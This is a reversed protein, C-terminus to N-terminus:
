VAGSVAQEGAGEDDHAQQDDHFVAGVDAAQELAGFRADGALLLIERVAPIGGAGGTAGM